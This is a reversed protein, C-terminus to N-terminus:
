CSLCERIRGVIENAPLVMPSPPPIRAAFRNIVSEMFVKVLSSAPFPLANQQVLDYLFAPMEPSVYIALGDRTYYSSTIAVTPVGHMLAQFGVASNLTIVLRSSAVLRPLSPGGGVRSVFIDRQRLERVLVSPLAHSSEDPHPRFVLPIEPPTAALAFRILDLWDPEGSPLIPRHLVVLVPPTSFLEPVKPWSSDLLHSGVGFRRTWLGSLGETPRQYGTGLASRITRETRGSWVRVRHDPPLNSVPQGFFPTSSACGKSEVGTVAADSLPMDRLAKWWNIGARHVLVADRRFFTQLGVAPVGSKEAVEVIARGMVSEATLYVLATPAFRDIEDKILSRIVLDPSKRFYMLPPCRYPVGARRASVGDVWLAGVMRIESFPLAAAICAPLWHGLLDSGVALLIRDCSM